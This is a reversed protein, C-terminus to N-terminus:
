CMISISVCRTVYINSVCLVLVLADLLM